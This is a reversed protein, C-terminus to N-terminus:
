DGSIGDEEGFLGELRELCAAPLPPGNISAVNERLHEIDGTGTLVVDIGPEHRCFRYGAEALTAAGCESTLFALPREGLSRAKLRGALRAGDLTKELAEESTLARRVAFMGLTGINKERTIDLVGRRGSPNLLNFGVMVVDWCDDGVARKLMAHDTDVGFRETIGLFRLKGEERLRELVPVARAVCEDYQHLEIGHLHFVDIYDTDLQRLSQEIRARLEDPELYRFKDPEFPHDAVHCKTSLVIHERRGRLAEGILPETRYAWATDIVNIGLDLAADIVTRADRESRGYARGLRSHGGAGLGAVSVRLGTRGLTTYQM